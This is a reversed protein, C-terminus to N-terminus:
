DREKNIIIQTAVSSIIIFGNNTIGFKRYSDSEIYQIYNNMLECVDDAYKEMVDWDWYSSYKDKLQNIIIKNEVWDTATEISIKEGADVISNIGFVFYGIMGNNIKM